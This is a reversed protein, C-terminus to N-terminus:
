HKSGNCSDIVKDLSVNVKGAMFTYFDREGKTVGKTLEGSHKLHKWDFVAKDLLTYYIDREGAEIVPVPIKYHNLIVDQLIRSTRGNGDVFPHIRVLHLHAGISTIIRSLAGKKEKFEKKLNDVFLPMEVAKVKYPDPPTVSAGTIRTGMDRYRALKGPYISSEMYWALKKIFDEDFTSPNFNKNGWRFAEGINKIGEKIFKRKGNTPVNFPVSRGSYEIKFSHIQSNSEIEKRKLKECTFYQNGGLEEKFERGDPGQRYLHNMKESLERSLEKPLFKM